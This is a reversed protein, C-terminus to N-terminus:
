RYNKQRKEVSQIADIVQDCTINAICPFPLKLNKSKSCQWYCRFCSHEAITVCHEHPIAPNPEFVGYHGGGLISVVPIGLALAFHATGTENSILMRFHPLLACLQLLTTRGTLDIVRSKDDIGDIIAKALEAEANNGLIAIHATPHNALLWNCVQAFNATPWCRFPMQAGPVIAYCCEPIGPLASIDECAIPSLLQPTERSYLDEGTIFRFYERYNQHITMEDDYHYLHTCALHTRKFSDFHHLTASFMGYTAQATIRSM